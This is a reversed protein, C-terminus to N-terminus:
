MRDFNRRLTAPTSADFYEPYQGCGELAEQGDSAPWSQLGVLSSGGPEQVIQRFRENCMQAIQDMFSGAVGKLREFLGAHRSKWIQAACVREFYAFRERAPKRKPDEPQIELGPDILAKCVELIWDCLAEYQASADKGSGSGREAKSNSNHCELTNCLADFHLLNFDDSLAIRAAAELYSKNIFVLFKTDALFSVRETHLVFGDAKGIKLRVRLTSMAADLDKEEKSKQRLRFLSYAVAMGILLLCGIILCFTLILQNKGDSSDVNTLIGVSLIKAAPLGRELLELNLSSETISPLMHAAASQNGAAIRSQVQVALSTAGIRRYTTPIVQDVVVEDTSVRLMSAVSTAFTLVKTEFFPKTCPLVAVLQVFTARYCAASTVSGAPSFTGAPCQTSSAAGGICYSGAPCKLCQQLALNAKGALDIQYGPPCSTLMYQGLTLDPVWVSGSVRGSLTVGNCTAGIPCQQCRFTSNLIYQSESCNSCQQLLQTLSNKSGDSGIMEYGLPCAELIYLGSRYDQKWVSGEVKGTLSNGDCTAGIPCDQCSYAPNNPDLIYQNDACAECYWVGRLSDEARSQGRVCPLCQISSTSLLVQDYLVLSIQLIVATSRKSCPVQPQEVRFHGEADMLHFEPTVLSDQDGCAALPPVCVRSRCIFDSDRVTNGRDDQLTVSTQLTEIGPIFATHTPGQNLDFLFTKPLTAIVDGYLAAKNGELTIKPLQQKGDTPLGLQKSLISECKM